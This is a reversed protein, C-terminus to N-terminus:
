RFEGGSDTLTVENSPKSRHATATPEGRASMCMMLTVAIQVVAGIV